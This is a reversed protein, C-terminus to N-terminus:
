DKGGFARDIIHRACLSKLLTQTVIDPSRYLDIWFSWEGDPSLYGM